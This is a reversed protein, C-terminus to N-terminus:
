QCACNGAQQLAIFMITAPAFEVKGVQFAAGAFRPSNM